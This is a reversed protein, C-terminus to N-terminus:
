EEELGNFGTLLVTTYNYLASMQAKFLEADNIETFFARPSRDRPSLRNVFNYITHWHRPANEYVTAPDKLYDSIAQWAVRRRIWVQSLRDADVIHDVEAEPTYVVLYGRQKIKDVIEVEENSLLAHGTGNRGLGVNFGGTEKLLDVRFSINVGAVWEDAALVRADNGRDIVSVLGLLDDHMWSPRPAAWIPNVKGGVVGAENGFRDYAAVIAALWGPRAIADDDMFAILPTKALGTAVNRANSLGPTKEIAWRLNEVSAYAKAFEESLRWNPSNDIVLIEYQSNDLTQGMLSDIAQGLLDYREYTCIAASILPSM